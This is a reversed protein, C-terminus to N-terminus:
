LWERLQKARRDSNWKDVMTKAWDFHKQEPKNDVGALQQATAYEFPTYMPLSLQM